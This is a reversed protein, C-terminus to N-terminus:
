ILTAPVRQTGCGKDRLLRCLSTWRVARPAHRSSQSVWHRELQEIALSFESDVFPIQRMPILWAHCIKHGETGLVRHWLFKRPRPMMSPRLPQPLVANIWSQRCPFGLQTLAGSEFAVIMCYERSLEHFVEIATAAGADQSTGRHGAQDGFAEPMEIAIPIKQTVKDHHRIVYM